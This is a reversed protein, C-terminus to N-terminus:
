LYFFFDAVFCKFTLIMWIDKVELDQQGRAVVLVHMRDLLISNVLQLLHPPVKAGSSFRELLRELFDPDQFPQQFLEQLWFPALTLDSCNCLCNWFLMHLAYTVNSFTMYANLCFQVRFTDTVVKLVSPDTKLLLLLGRYSESTKSSCHWLRGKWFSTFKNQLSTWM